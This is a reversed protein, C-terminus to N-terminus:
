ARRKNKDETVISKMLKKGQVMCMPVGGGPFTWQGTMWFNQLKPLKQPLVKGFLKTTPLWGEYSGRWNGTYRVWTIPTAIDYVEIQKKIGPIVKELEQIAWNFVLEKEKLYKDKDKSLKWWYDYDTEIQMSVVSKGKTCFNSDHCYHAFYFWSIQKGAIICSTELQINNLEVMDSLDLNIGLSICVLPPWLFPKQYLRRLARPTYKNELFSFLTTKGDCAGVVLDGLIIRGDELEIGKACDNEVIIKSVKSKFRVVGGSELYRKEIAQAFHFSGGLPYGGEKKYFFGLAMIPLIAPLGDVPFMQYLMEVLDPNIFQNELYKRYTIRKLRLFTPMFPVMKLFSGFGFNGSDGDMPPNFKSYWLILRSFKKISHQEDPFLRLLEKRFKGIDTYVTLCQGKMTIQRFREPYHFRVSDSIGLERFVPFLNTGKNSGLVWHLCHDFLFEGRKWSACVGGSVSHMEHIESQYGNMQAYCGVSLGSVGGGIILMKKM